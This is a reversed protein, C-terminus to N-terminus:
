LGPMHFDPKRFSFGVPKFGNDINIAIADGAMVFFFPVFGDTVCRTFNIHIHVIRYYLRSDSIFKKCFGGYPVSGFIPEIGVGHPKFHIDRGDPLPKFPCVLVVLIKYPEM